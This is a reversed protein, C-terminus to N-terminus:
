ASLPTHVYDKLYFTYMGFIYMSRTLWQGGWLQHTLLNGDVMSQFNNRRLYNM